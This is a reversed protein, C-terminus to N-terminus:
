RSLIETHTDTFVRLFYILFQLPSVSVLSTELCVLPADTGKAEEASVYPLALVVKATPPLGLLHWGRIDLDHIRPPFIWQITTSNGTLPPSTSTIGRHLCFLLISGPKRTVAAHKLSQNTLSPLQQPCLQVPKWGRSRPCRQQLSHGSERLKVRAVFPAATWRSLITCRAPSCTGSDRSFVQKAAHGVTPLPAPLVRCRMGPCSRTSPM